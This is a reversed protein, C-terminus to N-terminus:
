ARRAGRRGSRVNQAFRHEDLKFPAVPQFERFDRPLERIPHVPRRDLSNLQHLTTMNGPALAVEVLAQRGQLEGMIVLMQAVDDVPRRTRRARNRSASECVEVRDRILSGWQGQAFQEFGHSWCADRCM